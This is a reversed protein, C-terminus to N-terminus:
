YFVGENVGVGGYFVPRKIVQGEGFLFLDGHEDLMPVHPNRAKNWRSPVFPMDHILLNQSFHRIQEADMGAQLQVQQGYALAQNIQLVLIGHSHTAYRAKSFDFYGYRGPYNTESKKIRPCVKAKVNPTWSINSLAFQTNRYQYRLMFAGTRYKDTAKGAFIDNEIAFQWANFEIAIIGTEQSTRINNRYWKYAYAISYPRNLYQQTPHYFRYQQYSKESPTPVQKKGWAGLLTTSLQLEQRKLNPGLQNFSYYVRANTNVQVYEYGVYGGLMVGVRQVKTGLTGSLGITGGYKLLEQQAYLPKQTILFLMCFLSCYACRIKQKSM